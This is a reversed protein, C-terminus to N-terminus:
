ALFWCSTIECERGDRGASRVHSPRWIPCDRPCKSPIFDSNPIGRGGTTLRPVVNGAHSPTRQVGCRSLRGISRVRRDESFGQGFAEASTSAPFAVDGGADGAQPRRAQIPRTVLARRGGAMLAVGHARRALRCAALHDQSRGMDVSRGGPRDRHGQGSGELRQPCSRTRCSAPHRRPFRSQRMRASRLGGHLLSISQHLSASVGRGGNPMGRREPPAEPSRLGTSADCARREKGASWAYSGPHGRGCGLCAFGAHM